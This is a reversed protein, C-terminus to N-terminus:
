GSGVPTEGSQGGNGCSQQSHWIRGTERIGVRKLAIHELQADRTDSDSTKGGETMLHTIGASVDDMARRISAARNLTSNLSSRAQSRKLVADITKGLYGGVKEGEGGFIGVFPLFTVVRKM